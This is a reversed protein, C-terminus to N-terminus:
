RLEFEKCFVLELSDRPPALRHPATPYGHSCEAAVDDYYACEPCTFRLRFLEVEERLQQDVLTKM